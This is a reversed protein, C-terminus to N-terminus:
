SDGDPPAREVEGVYPAIFAIIEPLAQLYQRRGSPVHTIHGRWQVNGPEPSTEEIWIRIVFSLTAGERVDMRGDASWDGARPTASRQQDV